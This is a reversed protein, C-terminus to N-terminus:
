KVISVTQKNTINKIVMESAINLGKKADGAGMSWVKLGLATKDIFFPLKLSLPCVCGPLFGFQNILDEQNVVNWKGVLNKLNVKNIRDNGKLIIAKFGEKTTIILTKIANEPHYNKDVSSDTERASVAEDLFTIEEFAIGRDILNQKISNFTNM